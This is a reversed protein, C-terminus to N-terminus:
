ITGQLDDDIPELNEVFFEVHDVKLNKGVEEIEKFYLPKLEILKDNHVRHNWGGVISNKVAISHEECKKPDKFDNYIQLFGEKGAKLSNCTFRKLKATDSSDKENQKAFIAEKEEESLDDLTFAKVVASWQQGITMPHDKLPEYAEKWWDLLIKKHDKSAAFPSLKNKLIVIRNAQDKPTNEILSLM